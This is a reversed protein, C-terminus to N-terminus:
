SCASGAVSELATGIYAVVEYTNGSEAVAAALGMVMCLALLLATFRKM